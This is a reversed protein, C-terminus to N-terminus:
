TIACYRSGPLRRNAGSLRESLPLGFRAPRPQRYGHGFAIESMVDIWRFDANFEICDFPVIEGEIM